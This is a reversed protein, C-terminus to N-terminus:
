KKKMLELCKIKTPVDDVINLERIFLNQENSIFKRYTQGNEISQKNISLFVNCKKVINEAYYMCVAKSPAQVFVLRKLGRAALTRLIDQTVDDCYCFRCKWYTNRIQIM